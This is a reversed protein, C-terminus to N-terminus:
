KIERDDRRFLHEFAMLDSAFSGMSGHKKLWITFLFVEEDHILTEAEKYLESQEDPDPGLREIIYVLRHAKFVRGLDAQFDSDDIACGKCISQGEGVGGGGAV